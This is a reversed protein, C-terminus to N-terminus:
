FTSYGLSYWSVSRFSEGSETTADPLWFTISVSECTTKVIMAFTRYLIIETLSVREFARRQYMEVSM